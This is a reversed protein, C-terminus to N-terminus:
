VRERCSARGIEMYLQWNGLGSAPETRYFEEATRTKNVRWAGGDPDVLSALEPNLPEEPVLFLNSPLQWTAALVQAKTRELGRFDTFFRWWPGINLFWVDKGAARRRAPGDELIRRIESLLM